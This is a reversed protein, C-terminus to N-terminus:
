VIMNKLDLIDETTLKVSGMDGVLMDILFNHPFSIVM